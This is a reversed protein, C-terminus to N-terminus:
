ARRKKFASFVLKATVYGFIVGGVVDSLYHQVLTIRSIAIPAALSYMLLPEMGVLMCTTAVAVAGATHGSFFSSTGGSKKILDMLWDGAPMAQPPRARPSFETFAAQMLFILIVSLVMAAGARRDRMFLFTATGVMYLAFYVTSFFISIGHSPRGSLAVALNFDLGSLYSIVGALALAALWAIELRSFTGDSM